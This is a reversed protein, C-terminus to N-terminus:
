RQLQRIVFKEFSNVAASDSRHKLLSVHIKDLSPLVESEIPDLFSPIMTRPLATIGLGAKVAAIVGAYSPSLFVMRWKLKSADLSAVASKRYVCPQPAMVMPLPKDPQILGVDGVWELPEEWVNVGNPFGEPQNM